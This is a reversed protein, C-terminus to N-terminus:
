SSRIQCKFVIWSKFCRSEKSGPFSNRGMGKSLSRFYRSLCSTFAIWLFVSSCKFTPKKENWNWKIKPLVTSRYYIFLKNVKKQTNWQDSMLNKVSPFFQLFLGKKRMQLLYPFGDRDVQCCSVFVVTFFMLMPLSIFVCVFLYWVKEKRNNLWSEKYICHKHSYKSKLYIKCCNRSAKANKRVHDCM